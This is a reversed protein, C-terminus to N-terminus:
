QERRNRCNTGSHLLIKVSPTHAIGTVLCRCGRICIWKCNSFYMRSLKTNTAHWEFFPYDIAKYPGLLVCQTWATLLLSLNQLLSSVLKAQFFFRFHLDCVNEDADDHICRRAVVNRLSKGLAMWRGQTDRFTCDVSGFHIIWM